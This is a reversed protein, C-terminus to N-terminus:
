SQNASPDRDAGITRSFESPEGYLSQLDPATVIWGPEATEADRLRNAADIYNGRRWRSRHWAFERPLWIPPRGSRRHYREESKKLNAARFLRDGMTM